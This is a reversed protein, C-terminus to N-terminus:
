YAAKRFVYWSGKHKQRRKFICVAYLVRVSFSENDQVFDASIGAREFYDKSYSEFFYGGHDGFVRPEIVFLDPIPTPVIKM